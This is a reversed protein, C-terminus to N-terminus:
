DALVGPLGGLSGTLFAEHSMPRGGLHRQLGNSPELFESAQVHFNM